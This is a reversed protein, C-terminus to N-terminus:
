EKEKEKVFDRGGKLLLGKRPKVYKLEKTLWPKNNSGVKVTMATIVTDEFVKIYYTIIDTLKHPDSCADYFLHWDMSEFSESM